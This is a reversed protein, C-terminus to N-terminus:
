AYVAFLMCLIYQIDSQIYTHTNHPHYIVYINYIIKRSSQRDDDRTEWDSSRWIFHFLIWPHYLISSSMCPFYSSYTHLLHSDYYSYYIHKEIRIQRVRMGDKYTGFLTIRNNRVVSNRWLLAVIRYIRSESPSASLRHFFCFFLKSVYTNKGKKTKRRKM